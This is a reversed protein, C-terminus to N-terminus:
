SASPYKCAFGWQFVPTDFKTQLICDFQLRIDWITRVVRNSIYNNIIFLWICNL